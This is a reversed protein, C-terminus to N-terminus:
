ISSHLHLEGLRDFAWIRMLSGCITFCLVFRRTDQAALVERAYRGIDLWADAPKDASPNSKLEGPVLIQSWHCKSDKTAKPNNVFGIDLKRQATSGAIPKNPQALPRQQHTSTTSVCDEAFIVLKEILEVFWILVADQNADAPWGSWGDDGYLTNDGDECKNFVAESATELNPIDFYTDHFEPLGVYMTGLEQKLINDVYKRHETSNAFSSTNHIWPTQQHWIAADDPTEALVADLLHGLSGFDFDNSAVASILRLLDNRINDRGTRSPLIGSAPLKQLSFLLEFVLDRLDQQSLQDLADLPRSIGQKECISKYSARFADLGDKIPHEEIIKERSSQDTM